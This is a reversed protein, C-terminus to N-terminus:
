MQDKLRLSVPCLSSSTTFDLKVGQSTMMDRSTRGELTVFTFFVVVYCCQRIDRQRAKIHM